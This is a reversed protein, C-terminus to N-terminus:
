PGRRPRRLRFKRAWTKRGVATSTPSGTGDGSVAQAVHGRADQAFHALVGRTM